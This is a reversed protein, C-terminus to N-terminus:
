LETTIKPNVYCTADWPLFCARSVNICASDVEAQYAERIYNQLAVFWTRHDCRELDISIVWKLGDGSPSRFLLQTDFYKDCVLREKLESLRFGLHDFDLCIFGSHKILGADNRQSFTGSFLAYDFKKGKFNRHDNADAIERLKITRECAEMSTIYRYADLITMTGASRVNSIPGRYFQFKPTEDVPAANQNDISIINDM